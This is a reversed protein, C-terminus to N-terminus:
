GVEDVFPRIDMTATSVERMQRPRPAELKFESILNKIRIEFTIIEKEEFGRFLIEARISWFTNKPPFGRKKVYRRRIRM